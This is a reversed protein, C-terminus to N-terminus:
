EVRFFNEYNQLEDIPSIWEIVFNKDKMFKDGFGKWESSFTLKEKAPITEKQPNILLYDELSGIYDDSVNDIGINELIKGDSNYLFIKGTIVTDTHSNNEINVTFTHSFKESNQLLQTDSFPNFTHFIKESFNKDSYEFLVQQSVLAGLGIFIVFAIFYRFSFKM